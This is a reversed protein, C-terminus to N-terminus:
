RGNFECSMGNWHYGGMCVNGGGGSSTVALCGGGDASAHGPAYLKSSEACAIASDLQGRLGSVEANNAAKYAALDANVVNIDSELVAISADVSDKYSRMMSHLSMVQRSLGEAGSPGAHVQGLCSVAMVAGSVLIKLVNM